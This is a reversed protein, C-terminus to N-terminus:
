KLKFKIKKKRWEGKYNWNEKDLSKGYIATEIDRMGNLFFDRHKWVRYLVFLFSLIIVILIGFYSAIQFVFLIISLVIFSKLILKLRRIILDKSNYEKSKIISKLHPYLILVSIFIIGLIYNYKFAQTLVLLYIIVKVILTTLPYKKSIKKLHEM